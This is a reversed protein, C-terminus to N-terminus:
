WSHWEKEKRREMRTEEARARREKGGRGSKRNVEPVHSGWGWVMGLNQASQETQEAAGRIGHAGTGSATDRSVPTM